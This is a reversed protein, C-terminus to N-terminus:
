RVCSHDRPAPYGAKRPGDSDRQECWIIYVGRHFTMIPKGRYPKVKAAPTATTM